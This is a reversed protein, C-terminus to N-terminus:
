SQSPHIKTQISQRLTFLVETMKNKLFARFSRATFYFIYFNAMTNLYIVFAVTRWAKGSFYVGATVWTVYLTCSPLFSLLQVAVTLLVTITGQLRVRGGMRSRVKKAKLLILISAIVLITFCLVHVAPYIISSYSIYWRPIREITFHGLYYCDYTLYSFSLTDEIYFINGVLIPAYVIFVFGLLIVCIIHGSTKTWTQAFFPYKLHVFKVVTLACTLSMIYGATIMMINDELHGVMKGLVWRDAIVATAVPFVRFISQLLDSVAMHQIIALLTDPLNIVRYRCTAILIISDGILSSTLVILVWTVLLFREGEDQIKRSMTSNYTKCMVEQFNLCIITFTISISLRPSTDCIKLPMVKSLGFLIKQHLFFSSITRLIVYM